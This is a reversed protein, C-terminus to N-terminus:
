DQLLQEALLPAGDVIQRLCDLDVGDGDAVM